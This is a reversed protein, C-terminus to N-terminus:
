RTRRAYRWNSREVARARASSIGNSRNSSPWWVQFFGIASYELPLALAHGATLRAPDVAGFEEQHVFEEFADVGNARAQHFVDQEILTRWPAVMKRGRVHEFDDLAQALADADDM